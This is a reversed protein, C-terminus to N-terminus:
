PGGKEDAQPTRVSDWVDRGITDFLRRVSADEVVVVSGPPLRSISALDPCTPLVRVTPTRLWGGTHNDPHLRWGSDQEDAPTDRQIIIRDGWAGTIAVALDIRLDAGPHENTALALAARDERDLSIAPPAEIDESRQANLITNPHPLMARIAAYRDSTSGPPQAIAKAMERETYAASHTGEPSAIRTYQQLDDAMRELRVLAKPVLAEIVRSLPETQGRYLSQEREIERAWKKTAALKTRSEGVREKAHALSKREDISSKGMEAQSLAHELAIRAREEEWRRQEKTWHGPLEHSLRSASRNLESQAADLAARAEDAFNILAARFDRLANISNVRAPGPM